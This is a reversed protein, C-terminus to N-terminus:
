GEVVVEGVHVADTEVVGADALPLKHEEDVAIGGEPVLPFVLHEFDAFVM